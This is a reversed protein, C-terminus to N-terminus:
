FDVGQANLAGRSANAHWWRLNIESRGPEIVMVSVMVRKCIPCAHLINANKRHGHLNGIRYFWSVPVKTANRDNSKAMTFPM